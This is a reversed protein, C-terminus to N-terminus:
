VYASPMFGESPVPVYWNSVVEHVFRYLGIASFLALSYTPSPFQIYESSESRVFLTDEHSLYEHFVKDAHDTFILRPVSQTAFCILTSFPYKYTRASRTFVFM